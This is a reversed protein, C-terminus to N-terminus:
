ILLLQTAKTSDSSWGQHLCVRDVSSWPVQLNQSLEAPKCCAEQRGKGGWAETSREGSM